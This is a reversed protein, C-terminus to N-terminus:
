AEQINTRLSAPPSALISEVLECRELGGVFVIAQGKSHAEMALASAHAANCKIAKVIQGIVQDFSHVNDNFLIVNHPRGLFNDIKTLEEVQEM